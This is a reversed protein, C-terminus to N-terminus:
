SEPHSRSPGEKSVRKDAEQDTETDTSGLGGHNSSEENAMEALVADIDALLVSVPFNPGRLAEAHGRDLEQELDVPVSGHGAADEKIEEWRM